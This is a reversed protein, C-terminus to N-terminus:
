YSFCSHSYSNLIGQLDDELITEGTGTEYARWVTIKSDKFQFNNLLSIGEWKVAPDSLNAADVLAVRVGPIGGYSLTAEKFERATTVDHGEYIYGCVHGSQLRLYSLATVVTSFM